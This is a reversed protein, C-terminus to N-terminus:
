EWTGLVGRWHDVMADLRPKNTKYYIAGFVLIAGIVLVLSGIVTMRASREMLALEKYLLSILDVMLGTFGLALYMRIRLFSGLGMSLLGLVIMTLNFWVPHSTDALAYYASSGLMAMLTVLRIGNRAEVRIQRRFLEQLVLVGLGVPIIYANIASLHLKSYFTMLIFAVFGSLALINYPSERDEKGLYAFMVSHLGVVLLALNVGLGHVLVWVLALAPLLFMSTLLPVRLARPQLAFVQKAGALGFSFALSAWVDYEYNWALTTLMLQRRISALCAVAAFQMMYYALMSERIKGEGCWSVALAAELTVLFVIERPAFPSEYHVAQLVAVTITTVWLVFLFIQRGGSELLAITPDFLRFQKRPWARYGPALYAPFWRAFLGTLFITAATALIPWSALAGEIGDSHIPAQSFYVIWAPVLLLLGAALEAFVGAPQRERQPTLAALFAGSAAAWLGVMSWPRHYLIHAMVLAALAAAARQVVEGPLKGSALQHSVLLVLWIGIIAWVVQEKPLCSPLIFDMHLALTLEMAAAVLYLASRRIVGQHVFISAAGALLPAVMYTDDAFHAIGWLAAGQTGLLVWYGWSRRLSHWAADDLKALRQILTRAPSRAYSLTIWFHGLGLACWASPVPDTFPSLRPFWTLMFYSAVILALGGYFALWDTGGLGRLRLLVVALVLILPSNYHYYETSIATGPFMVLQFVSKFAYLGLVLFGLVAASNRYRRAEPRGARAGTEARVYFYAVPLGLAILTFVPQRFLPALLAACWVALVVGFHYLAECLDVHAEEGPGPNRAARRFYQGALWALVGSVIFRTSTISALAPETCYNISLLLLVLGALCLSSLNLVAIARIPSLAHPKQEQAEPDPPTAAGANSVRHLIFRLVTAQLLAFSFGLCILHLESLGHSRLWPGGFVRVLLVDGLVLLLGAGAFFGSQQWFWAVLAFSLTGLYPAWLQVADERLQPSALHYVAALTAFVVAPWFLWGRSQTVLWRQPYAGALLVSKRRHIWAGAEALLVLCLSLSAVRWPTVLLALHEDPDTIQGLLNRHVVAYALLLAPLLLLGSRQARATLLLAALLLGQQELSLELGRVADAFGGLWFLLALASGIAMWPSLLPALKQHAVQFVELAIFLVQTTLLLGLTPIVSLAVSVRDWLQETGPATVALLAIWVQGFLLTGFVLHRTRLAHWILQAAVFLWLWQLRELPAGDLLCGSGIVSLVASGAMLVHRTPDSLLEKAWPWAPQLQFRYVLYLGQLLLGLILFPWTWYPEAAEHWYGLGIGALACLWGVHVGLFAGDLRRHYIAIFTWAVSTIGVAIATELPTSNFSLSRWWHWTDVKALLYFAGALIPWTFLTHDPRRFPFAETGMFRDGEPLNQLFAWPRLAFCVWTMLLACVASGLGSGWGLWPTSAQLNAKLEPFLIAMVAVALAAPVLSRSHYTAPIMALMLLIPGLFEAYDHYWDPEPATDGLIVRLAMAALALMGYFFLVNSRAQLFLRAPKAATVGLWAWCLLALGFVMTNHHASRGAMDAFGAYPLVLAMVVATAHLWHIQQDRVARWALLAAVLLLWGATMLPPSALHWQVLPAVLTTLVLAVVQMGHCALVLEERNRKQSFWALAGFGLAAGLGLAPLMPGPYGPLLGVSAAGLLWLTLAIWYHLPHERSLAQYLWVGGATGFCAIRVSPEPFGMLLGLLILAFGLFSEGGHLQPSERLQLARREAYLVLWGVLIVLLAYTSARPLHRMFGHVWLFVQLFTVALAAALFWPVRKEEAMERTLINRSFRMVTAATVLFGLYFGAGICLLLPEGELHAVTHALPGVAVLANLLLLTGGLLNGLAPEVAACWRRLGWGFLTLYVFAMVLLAPVKASVKEDSSLLAMAMFNIPLLGIAAGRLIAATGKFESGKKDIWNGVGALSWTFLALLAPMITYRVLWHKDWTYYALLSSGLIVMAIGAVIYWNEVFFPQIHTEWLSPKPPAPPVIAAVAVEEGVGFTASGLRPPASGETALPPPALTAGLSASETVIPIPPPVPEPLGLLARQENMPTQKVWRHVLDTADISPGSVSALHILADVVTPDPDPLLSYFILLMGHPHQELHQLLDHQEAQWLSFQRTLWDEWLTWNNLALQGFRLTLILMARDKAWRENAIERLRPIAAPSGSACIEDLTQSQAQRGESPGAGVQPAAAAAGPSETPPPPGVPAIPLSAEWTSKNRRQLWTLVTERGPLGPPWAQELPTLAPLHLVAPSLAAFAAALSQSAQSKIERFLHPAKEQAASLFALDRVHRLVPGVAGALERSFKWDDAAALPLGALLSAADAPPRLGSKKKEYFDLAARRLTERLHVALAALPPNTETALEELLALMTKPEGGEGALAQIAPLVVRPELKGAALWHALPGILNNDTERTV